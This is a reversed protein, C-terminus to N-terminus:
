RPVNRNLAPSEGDAGPAVEDYASPEDISRSLLPVAGVKVDYASLARRYSGVDVWRTVLTFLESDDLNHGLRGDLYGPREGLAALAAGVDRVFGDADGAAVRFRNVVIVRDLTAVRCRNVVIGM